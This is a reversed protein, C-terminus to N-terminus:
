HLLIRLPGRNGFLWAALLGLGAWGTGYLTQEISTFGTVYRTLYALSIVATMLLVLMAGTVLSKRAGSADTVTQFKSLLQVAIQGKEGLSYRGTQEDKVLLDGLVKLHYNLKGTHAIQLLNQLDVYSLSTRQHVLGLIAARTPDRLVNHLKSIDVTM